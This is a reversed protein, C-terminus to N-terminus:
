SSNGCTSKWPSTRRFHSLREVEIMKEVTLSLLEHIIGVARKEFRELGGCSRVRVAAEMKEYPKAYQLRQWNKLKERFGKEVEFGTPLHIPFAYRIEFESLWKERLERERWKEVEAEIEADGSVVLSVTEPTELRFDQPRNLIVSTRFDDPLGLERRALWLAHVHLAGRTSITLLKKLRRVAESESERIIRAEEEILDAMRQTIRCCVNKETEHVFIEFVQPYKRLFAGIAMNLDVDMKRRSLLQLSAHQGRRSSIVEQLSLVKRLKKLQIMLGDLRLDRTRSELRTTRFGGAEEMKESHEFQVPSSWSMKGSPSSVKGLVSTRADAPSKCRHVCRLFVGFAM